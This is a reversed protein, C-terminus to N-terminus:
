FPKNVFKAMSTNKLIEKLDEDKTLKKVGIEDFFIDLGEKELQNETESLIKRYASALEPHKNNLRSLANIEDNLLAHALECDKIPDSRSDGELKYGKVLKHYPNEPFCIPSLRLTDLVPKSSLPNRPDLNAIHELDHAIINHGVVVKANSIFNGMEEVSQANVKKGHFQSGDLLTGFERIMGSDTIELDFFAYDKLNSSM